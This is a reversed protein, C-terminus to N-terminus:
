DESLVATKLGMLVQETNLTLVYYDVWMLFFFYDEPIVTVLIIM